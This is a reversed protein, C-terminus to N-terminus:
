KIHCALCLASGANTTILFPRYAANTVYDVHPDHCSSCEVMDEGPGFFAAGKDKAELLTHLKNAKPGTPAYEGSSLVLAYNFSIPHDDTLDGGAIDPGGWPDLGGGGINGMAIRIDTGSVAENEPVGIDNSNNHMAYVSVSGDHCSMCLLSENGLARGAGLGKIYSALTASNYHTFTSIPDLHNWLPGTLSGGHPTHCFICVEDENSRYPSVGAPWILPDGDPASSSLNHVTNSVGAPGKANAEMSWGGLLAVVMVVIVAFRKM